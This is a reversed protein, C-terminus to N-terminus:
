DNPVITVEDELPMMAVGEPAVQTAEMEDPWDM